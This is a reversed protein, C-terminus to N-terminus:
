RLKLCKIKFRKLLEEGIDDAYPTLITEAGMKFLEMVAEPRMVNGLIKFCVKKSKYKLITGFKFKLEQEGAEGFIFTVHALATKEATKVLTKIADENLDQAAVAIGARNKLSRSIKRCQKKFNKLNDRELMMAPMMVTVGDVGTKIVDKVNTMKSKFTSEGFPFDILACINLKELKEREVRRVLAPLYAPSLLIESTELKASNDVVAALESDTVNLRIIVKGLRHMLNKIQFLCCEDKFSEIDTNLLRALEYFASFDAKKDKRKEEYIKAPVVKEETVSEIQTDRLAVNKETQVHAEEAVAPVNETNEDLSAPLIIVDVDASDVKKEAEDAKKEKKKLSLM